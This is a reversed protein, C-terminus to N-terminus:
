EIIDSLTYLDTWIEGCDFCQIDQTIHKGDTGNGENMPGGDGDILPRGLTRLDESNCYPCVYGHKKLFGEKKAKTLTM